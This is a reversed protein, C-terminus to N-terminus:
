EVQVIIVVDTAGKFHAEVAIRVEDEYSALSEDLTITFVSKKHQISYTVTYGTDEGTVEEIIGNIIPITYVVDFNLAVSVLVFPPTVFINNFAIQLSEKFDASTVSLIIQIDNVYGADNKFQIVYRTSDMFLELVDAISKISHTRKLLSTATLYKKYVADGVPTKDSVTYITDLLGGDSRDYTVGDITVPITTSFGHDIGDLLFDTNDFQFLDDIPPRSSYPRPLGLVVGLMDLWKGELNDISFNLLYNIFPLDQEYVHDIGYGFATAIDGCVQRALYPFKDNQVDVDIAM